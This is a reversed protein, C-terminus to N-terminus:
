QQRRPLARKLAQLFLKRQQPHDVNGAIAEIFDKFTGARGTEKRILMKAMPGIFKSLTQEIVTLEDAAVELLRGGTRSSISPKNLSGSSKSVPLSQSSQSQTGLVFAERAKPEQISPALAERLAQITPALPQAKRVLVRALPGINRALDMEVEHVEDPELARISKVPLTQTYGTSPGERRTNGGRQNAVAYVEHLRGHKDEYQGLYQFLDATDDTIRSIVDYYSRSVLVQNGQAFDMVRQAVNIGDGVVNVRDNIDSIVRVPGMHLGIRASLLRGYRQGLLDRLLMASHLAEEPDGMFCIAAGDGTDISIRTDEPVSKLAKAILENFLKKLTVQDDVSRVSYGVLDLFMITCLLNRRQSSTPGSTATGTSPVSAAQGAATIAPRDPQQQPQSQAADSKESGQIAARFLALTQPRRSEDPHMAWEIADLLTAGYVSVEALSSAPLMTDNKVRAASEVPKKGTTMWYMVAGLSYIDTWPGQNGQSHYQEFPAFGPSVINTMDRDVTVRRAAGFDLLVPTGDARVYINDPKIDRHLFGTKHVAELGDLVPYVISLLARRSLPANQPVWRKLSLGSEYEMVIYATGNERFYRLVRVINPHRFTALARAEDLFRELGWDYQEQHEPKAGRVQVEQNPGRTVLDSPFYEKIAVPLQLNSDRALYTIGFGGGGLPREINYENIRYGAPLCAADAPPATPAKPTVAADAM